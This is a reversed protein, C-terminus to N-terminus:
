KKMIEREMRKERLAKYKKEAQKMLSYYQSELYKETEETTIVPVWAEEKEEIPTNLPLCNSSQRLTSDICKEKKAKFRKGERNRQIHTQSFSSDKPSSNIINEREKDTFRDKTTKGATWIEEEKQNASIQQRAPDRAEKIQKLHSKRQVEVEKGKFSAENENIENQRKMQTVPEEEQEKQEERGNFFAEEENIEKPEEMQAFPEEKQEKQEERGNFFAEEENIEKPEEMQAFPEEKQEKPEERGNFFAEEENIEKPEEMQAFPEEKQEKPEEWSNSFAEEENIEKQEETQIFTEEKQEKPEEWSNSFAEEENIEKQEETQIFTEEKQEKPEEWGNSFAEEENIEKQEEMQAFPEEKQGKPEEWSNSFAEEENIEKQEEMQAFPEEKQEKPEERGNSFAEKKNIEKQEEVRTSPEEEQEETEETDALEHVGPFINIICANQVIIKEEGSILILHDDFVRSLFGTVFQDNYCNITVWSYKCQELIEHLQEAQLYNKTVTNTQMDKANKSVSKIQALHHYIYKEETIQLILYDKKVDVMIGKILIGDNSFVGVSYGIFPRLADSFFPSSM